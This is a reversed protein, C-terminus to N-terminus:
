GNKVIKLKNLIKHSLYQFTFGLILGYFMNDNFNPIAKFYSSFVILVDKLFRHVLYSTIFACVFDLLNDNLWFILDPKIYIPPDQKLLEKRKVNYRWLKVLFMGLLTFYIFAIQNALSDSGLIFSFFDKM